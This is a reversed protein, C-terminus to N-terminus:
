IDFGSTIDFNAGLTDNADFYDNMMKNISRQYDPPMTDQMLSWLALLAKETNALRKELSEM